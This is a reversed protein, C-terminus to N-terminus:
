IGTWDLSKGERAAASDLLQRLDNFDADSKMLRFKAILTERNNDTIHPTVIDLNAHFRRWVVTAKNQISFAIFSVIGLSFIACAAILATRKLLRRLAKETGISAEMKIVSRHILPDLIPIRVVLGFLLGSVAFPTMCVLMLVALAAVPTPDLAASTFVQSDFRSAVANMLQGVWGFGPKVLAEWVGNGLAGLILTGVIKWPFRPGIRRPSISQTDSVNDEMNVVRSRFSEPLTDSGLHKEPFMSLLYRRIPNIANQNSTTGRLYQYAGASHLNVGSNQLTRALRKTTSFVAAHTRIHKQLLGITGTTHRVDHTEAAPCTSALAYM